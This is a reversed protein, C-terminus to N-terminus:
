IKGLHVIKQSVLFPRAGNEDVALVISTKPLKAEDDERSYIKTIKGLPFDCFDIGLGWLGGSEASVLFLLLCQVLQV